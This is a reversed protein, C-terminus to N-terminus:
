FRQALEFLVYRSPTNRNAAIGTRVGLQTDLNVLYAAGLNWNALVGGNRMHAIQPASAEVFGRVQDTFRKNLVSGLIASTFHHGDERTDFDVGPMLGLSLDRPLDWTLVSRLSPRVGKGRFPSSGTPAEVDLIWSVAAKGTAPNRDQTHWKLGFATDGTGSQGDQRLYGESDVRLEVNDVIGYKLLGQTASTPSEPPSRRNRVSILEVEYQYQGKPVVESSDVFDPGDTDIADLAFADTALISLACFLAAIAYPKM